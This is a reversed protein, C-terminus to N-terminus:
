GTGRQYERQTESGGPKARMWRCASHSSQLNVDTIVRTTAGNRYGARTKGSKVDGECQRAITDRAHRHAGQMSRLAERPSTLLPRNLSLPMDISTSELRNSILYTSEAMRPHRFGLFRALPLITSPPPALPGSSLGLAVRGPAKCPKPRGNM